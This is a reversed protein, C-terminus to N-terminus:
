KDRHSTVKLFRRFLAEGLVHVFLPEAYLWVQKEDVELVLSKNEEGGVTKRGRRRRWEM